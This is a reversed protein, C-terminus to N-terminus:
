FLIEILDFVFFDPRDLPLNFVSRKAFIRGFSPLLLLYLAIFVKLALYHKEIVPAFTNFLELLKNVM